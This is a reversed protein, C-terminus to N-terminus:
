YAETIKAENNTCRTYICTSVCIFQLHLYNGVPPLFVGRVFRVPTYLLVLSPFSLIRAHLFPFFTGKLSNWRTGEQYGWWRGRGENRGTVLLPRSLSLIYRHCFSAFSPRTRRTPSEHTGLSCELRRQWTENWVHMCMCVYKRLMYAYVHTCVFSSEVLLRSEPPPADLRVGRLYEPWYIGGGEKVRKNRKARKM